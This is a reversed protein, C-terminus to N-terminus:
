LKRTALPKGAIPQSRTLVTMLQLHNPLSAQSFAKRVVRGIISEDCLHHFNKIGKGDIKLEPVYLGAELAHRRQISDFTCDTFKHPRYSRM